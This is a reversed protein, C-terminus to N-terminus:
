VASRRRKDKSKGHNLGNPKDTNVESVKKNWSATSVLKKPTASAVVLSTDTKKLGSAEDLWGGQYVFMSVDHLCTQANYVVKGKYLSICLNM